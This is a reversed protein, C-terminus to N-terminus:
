AYILGAHIAFWTKFEGGPVLVQLGSVAPEPMHIADTVCTYPELCVSRGHPPTFVVLERFAADTTQTIQLGAAPDIVAGSIQGERVELDTYVDDFKLERLEQGERLDRDGSVSLLRGTPLNDVLEWQRSAPVQVICDGRRSARALPVKFYAHTGFGWPLPVSDPNQVRLDCHLSTELLEYRVDVIFDAPWLGSREPADVSLQFRGTVANERLEVVRWPRDFVMGHIINGFDDLRLGALDYSKGGWEYKGARVRNPFPFLLPIGNRTPREGTTEFNPESDLVDVVQAGVPIQLSYCTFGAEPLIRATAGSKANTLILPHM